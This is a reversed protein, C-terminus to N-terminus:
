QQKFSDLWEQLAQGAAERGGLGFSLAIAVAIGGTLLGFALNVINPAIGIRELAMASVLVIIAIRATQGLFIAQPTGSSTILNFALNAFYLGVGFIVVGILVQAGLLLIVSVVNKLAEIQLIDVATLAAVLMVAVLVIIGVLESPTRVTTQPTAGAVTEEGMEDTPTESEETTPQSIGLWQFVDNFGISALVNTVLESIYQGAVYALGLIVTAAFLKPLIELVQNLMETAPTSIAQIQLADLATIAIPILVLVYVISGIIQSLSQERASASLGFKEGIQNIGAATLLNTVVKKVVQAIVWGVTAIIIAAFVNPVISLINNVLEQLPRLTGELQLVSLISPLFLLYIFWYLTSGITESLSLQGEASEEGVQQNIKEDIQLGRLSRTVILKVVTGLLWAIVLLLAAGGIKPLFRTVEQLLSNLPESVVQLQLANLFAIVVFLTILWGVTESIWDEIPLSEQASEGAIWAAIKNDIDTKKLWKKTQGKAWGAFLLGVILILLAQALTLLSGGLNEGLESFLNEIFEIQAFISLYINPQLCNIIQIM